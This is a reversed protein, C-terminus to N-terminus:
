PALSYRLLAADFNSSYRLPLLSSSARLLSVPLLSVPRSFSTTMATFFVFPCAQAQGNKNLSAKSIQAHV